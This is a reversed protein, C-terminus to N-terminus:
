EFRHLQAKIPITTCCTNLNDFNGHKRILHSVRSNQKFLSIVYIYLKWISFPKAQRAEPSMWYTEPFAPFPNLFPGVSWRMCTQREDNNKKEETKNNNHNGNFMESLFKQSPCEELARTRDKWKPKLVFLINEYLHHFLMWLHLPPIFTINLYNFLM